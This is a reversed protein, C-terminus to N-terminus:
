DAVSLLLQYTVLLILVGRATWAITRIWNGLVLFRHIGSEFGRSLRDHAPVQMTATVIWIAIVLALNVQMWIAATSQALLWVLWGSSALEAIMVPGVIWTIRTQHSRQYEVYNPEGVLRFLPYHVIQILWILGVMFWTSALNILLALHIWNMAVSGFGITERLM